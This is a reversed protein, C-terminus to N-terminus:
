GRVSLNKGHHDATFNLYARLSYHLNADIKPDDVWAKTAFEYDVVEDTIKAQDLDLDSKNVTYFACVTGGLTVLKMNSLRSKDLVLGTEERLERVAADALSEGNEVQGGFLGWTNPNNCTPGRLGALVGSKGPTVIAVWARHRKSM